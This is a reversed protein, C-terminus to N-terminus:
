DKVLVHELSTAMAEETLEQGIGPLEPVTIYGNEPKYRVKCYDVNEECPSMFLLEHIYFNPIAAELQYSAAEAIPSSCVHIQVRADYIHALDCIKKAESIGGCNSIDPQVISVAHQNLMQQFGWRTHIREGTALPTRMRGALVHFLEPKFTALPEEVFLVGYKRMIEDLNAASTIDTQCFNEVIIGLEPGCESRIAELREEVLRYIDYKLPGTTLNRSIPARDRDFSLLNVKVADFGEQMVRRCIAAYERAEGRPGYDGNWGQQVQSVYCHLKDNHKGGLLKCVPVGLAKGKIDMLATDIASMASFVVVGGGSMHGCCRNRMEEWIVENDMPDCGVIQKAIDVTMGFAAHEGIGTSIGAEGFGYIGEDTNVRCIVPRIPFATFATGASKLQFVDVSTIRM